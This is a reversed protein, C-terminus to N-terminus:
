QKEGFAELMSVLEHRSHVNCKSYIHRIHTKVTAESLFLSEEIQRLGHCTVWLAFIESERKTMRYQKEFLEVTEDLNRVLISPEDEQFREPTIDIDFMVTATDTDTFFFGAVVLLLLSVTYLVTTSIAMSAVLTGVLLAFHVALRGASVLRVGTATRRGVDILLVWTCFEFFSACTGVLMQLIAPYNGGSFVLIFAALCVTLFLSTKIIAILSLKDHNANIAYRIVAFVACLLIGVSLLYITGSSEGTTSAMTYQVAARLVGLSLMSVGILLLLKWIVPPQRLSDAELEQSLPTHSPVLLVLAAPAVLGVVLSGWVGLLSLPYQVIQAILFCIATAVVLARRGLLMYRKAWLLYVWSAAVGSIFACTMTLAAPWHPILCLLSAVSWVAAAAWLLKRNEVVRDAGKLLVVVLYSLAGGSLSCVYIFAAASLGLFSSNADYQATNFFANVWIWYLSLALYRREFRPIHFTM